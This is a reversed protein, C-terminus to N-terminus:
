FCHGLTVNGSYAEPGTYTATGCGTFTLTESKGNFKQSLANSGYATFATTISGSVPTCCSDSLTVNNFTSTGTAQALVHNTTVTGSVVGASITLPSSTSIIHDFKSSSVTFNNIAISTRTGGSWDVVTSGTSGVTVVTGAASTRTTGSGFSRTVSTLGSTPFTGCAFSGSGAVAITQSGNWTASASGFSCGSYTMTYTGSSYACGTGGSGLTPCATSAFADPILSFSPRSKELFSVTGSGSSGNYAGGVSSAVSGSTSSDETGSSSNSSGCGGFVLAVGLTLASLILGTKLYFKTM